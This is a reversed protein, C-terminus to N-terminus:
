HFRISTTRGDSDASVQDSKCGARAGSGGLDRSARLIPNGRIWLPVNPTPTCRVLLRAEKLRREAERMLDLYPVADDSRQDAQDLKENSPEESAASAVLKPAPNKM